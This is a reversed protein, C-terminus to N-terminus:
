FGRLTVLPGSGAQERVGVVVADEELLIKLGVAKAWGASAGPADMTVVRGGPAVARAGEAMDGKEIRGSLLVGRFSASYFPIGLGTAVRSVGEVEGLAALDPHAGVVEIGEIMKSLKSAHRARPGMMFLTGPGETVGLLAAMKIVEEPGPDEPHSDPHGPNLPPRPQPRLDGFGEHVPYRDRCNSCGFEGELVRQDRVVHALLILGFDPGCRPCTLRDTLALHM